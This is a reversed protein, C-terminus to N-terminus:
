RTPMRRPRSRGRERRSGANELADGDGTQLLLSFIPERQLAHIPDAVDTRERVLERHRHRGYRRRRDRIERDGAAGVGREGQAPSRGPVVPVHTAGRTIANADVFSNRCTTEALTVTRSM